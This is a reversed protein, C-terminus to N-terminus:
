KEINPWKCCHFNAWYHWLNALTPEANQWILFLSDFIQWLSPFKKGYHHLKALDAWVIWSQSTTLKFDSLLATAQATTTTLHYANKGEVRVIRTQNESTLLKEQLMTTSFLSNFWFSAPSPANKSFYISYSSKPCSKRFITLVQSLIKLPSPLKRSRYWKKM